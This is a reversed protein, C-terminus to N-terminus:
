ENDLSEELRQEMRSIRNKMFFLDFYLLTFSILCIMLTVKMRDGLLVTGRPNILTDPHLSLFVRPIIFVFFPMSVMAFILYVSTIRGRNPNNELANWLSFYAVYILLLIIISSQRPDWNWFANWAMRSWLSGAATALVVFLFGLSASNYAKIDLNRSDDGRVLHMVSAVGAILFALVSVWALPVHFYLMRSAEGMLREAHAYLFALLIGVPMFLYVLRLVIM